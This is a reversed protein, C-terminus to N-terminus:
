APPLVRAGVRKAWWLLFLHTPYVIFLPALLLYGVLYLWPPVLHQEHFFLGRAWNVDHEPRWLFSIPVVVCCTLIQLKWGRRDYGLRWIAWLLLIPMVIHFLSLLRIALPVHPDFMFDTGGIPHHGTLVTGAVDIAFLTQVMLLGAAQWSFVLASETWMGILILFNGLDCFFLFNQAGYHKWYAPAWCLVWVTWAIKLWLPIRVNPM